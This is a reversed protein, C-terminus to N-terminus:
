YYETINNSARYSVNKKLILQQSVNDCMCMRGSLLKCYVVLEFMLPPILPVSPVICTYIGALDRTATLNLVLGNGVIEGNSTMWFLVEERDYGPRGNFNLCEVNTVNGEFYFPQAKKM